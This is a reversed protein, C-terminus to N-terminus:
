LSKNFLHPHSFPVYSKTFKMQLMQLNSNKKRPRNGINKNRIQKSNQPANLSDDKSMQDIVDMANKTKSRKYAEELIEPNTRIYPVKDENCKSKGHAIAIPQFVGCYEIVAYHKKQQFDPPVIEFSTVRKKFGPNGKQKTYYRHIKFLNQVTPQESLPEWISQQNKRM